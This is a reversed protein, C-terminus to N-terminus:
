HTFKAPRRACALRLHVEGRLRGPPADGLAVALEGLVAGGEFRSGVGRQDGLPDGLRLGLPGHGLGLETVAAAPGPHRGLLDFRDHGRQPVQDLDEILRVRLVLGLHVGPESQPQGVAM